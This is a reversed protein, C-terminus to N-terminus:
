IIINYNINENKNKSFIKNELLNKTSKKQNQIIKKVLYNVKKM